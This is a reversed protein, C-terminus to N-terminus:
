LSPDILPAPSNIIQNSKQARTSFYELVKDIREKKITETKGSTKPIPLMPEKSIQIFFYYGFFSSLSIVVFMFLVALRWYVNIKLWLSENEKKFKKERKFFKMMINKTHLIIRYFKFTKDKFGYEM